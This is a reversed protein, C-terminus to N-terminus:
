EADQLKPITTRLTQGRFILRILDHHNKMYIWTMNKADPTHVPPVDGWAVAIEAKTMGIAIEGAQVEDLYEARIKKSIADRNEFGILSKLFQQMSAMREGKSFLITYFQESGATKFVFKDETCEVAEIETGYPIINGSIFNLCNIKEPNTYFINYKTYLKDNEGQQMVESVVVTKACGCLLAAVAM